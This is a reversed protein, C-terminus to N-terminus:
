RAVTTPEVSRRSSRDGQSSLAGHAYVAGFSCHGTQTCREWAYSQRGSRGNSSASNKRRVRWGNSSCASEDSASVSGRRTQLRPRPRPRAHSASTLFASCRTDVRAPHTARAPQRLPTPCPCPPISVPTWAQAALQNQKYRLQLQARRDRREVARLHLRHNLVVTKDPPGSGAAVVAAATASPIGRASGYRGAVRPDNLPPTVEEVQRRKLVGATRGDPHEAGDELTPTAAAPSTHKSISDMQESKPLDVHEGAAVV